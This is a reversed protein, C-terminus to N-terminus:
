VLNELEADINEDIVLDSASLVQGEFDEDCQSLVGAAHHALISGFVDWEDTLLHWASLNKGSNTSFGTVTIKHKM